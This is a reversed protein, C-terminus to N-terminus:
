LRVNMAALVKQYVANEKQLDAVQQLAAALQQELEKERATPSSPVPHEHALAAFFNHQLITGAKWLLAAQLTPQRLTRTLTTDAMDMRRSMEAITIHRSDLEKRLLQGLHPLAKGDTQLMKSFDPM